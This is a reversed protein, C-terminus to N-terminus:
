KFWFANSFRLFLLLIFVRNDVDKRMKARVPPMNALVALIGKVSGPSLSDRFSTASIGIGSGFLLVTGLSTASIGIGSGFLLVTGLSTPQDIAKSRTIPKAELALAIKLFAIIRRVVPLNSGNSNQVIM